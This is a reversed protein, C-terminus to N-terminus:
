VIRKTPLTLHTYSVSGPTNGRYPETRSFSTLSSRDATNNGMQVGAIGLASREEYREWSRMWHFKVGFLRFENGVRFERQRRDVDAMLPFEDDRSDFLNTTSLAPGEQSNRSYGLFFKVRSQPLLTLDHDQWRRTTDIGHQGDAIALAPNFYATSRWQLDYRWLGNRQARLGASQYPDNGLGQTWITLEDLFAARGDKSNMSFRSSLLRVGNGYNVDSRYKNENGGVGHFRVGLEYSQVLNYNLFDEGRARGVSEATPAVTRQAPAPLLCVFLCLIRKM